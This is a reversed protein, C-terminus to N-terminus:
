QVTNKWFPHELNIDPRLSYFSDSPTEMTDKSKGPFAYGNELIALIRDIKREIHYIRENDKSTM